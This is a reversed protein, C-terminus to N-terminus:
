VPPTRGLEAPPLVDVLDGRHQVGLKRYSRTLHKEIARQSVGLLQAIDRNTRGAAALRAVRLEAKTLPVHSVRGREDEILITRARVTLQLDGCDLALEHCRRLHSTADPDSQERLRIGLRLLSRALELKNVSGELIDVSDRLVTIGEKGGVVDGLIRHARGLAAPAGWEAARLCDEEAAERAADRDGIRRHLDATLARWPFLVPNRWGSRRMQRGCEQYHGLASLLDGEATALAGQMLHLVSALCPNTTEASCSTLVNRALSTDHAASAVAAL